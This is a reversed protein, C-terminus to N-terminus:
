PEYLNQFSAHDLETVDVLDYRRQERLDRLLDDNIESPFRPAAAAQVFDAGLVLGIKSYDSYFYEQLLPLLEERFLEQLRVLKLSRGASQEQRLPLFYSHGIQHDRGLLVTLRENIRRLLKEVDIGEVELGNLLDYRPRMERFHFRRRLATDLSEISRDATNMTGLFCLNAPIGFRQRSYPLTVILEHEAGLRKSSEVVSILEGFIRSVNGRNIEDIAIVHQPAERTYAARDETSLMTCFEHLTGEFGTLHLAREAARQLVGPEVRYVLREGQDTDEGVVQPRIGEIFDEYSFSQHFTIFTHRPEPQAAEDLNFIEDALSKLEAELEGVIKWVSEGEKDFIYPETRRSYHVTQSGDITHAQLTAWIGNALHRRPNVANKAKVLPHGCLASVTATGGLNHLALAVVEFWTLDDARERLAQDDAEQIEIPGFDEHLIRQLEYTKGTGPPGFLILNLPQLSRPVGSSASKAGFIKQITEPQSIELLADFWGGGGPGPPPAKGTFLRVPQPLLELRGATRDVRKVEGVLHIKLDYRGGLGKIAFWDGPQIDDFRKWCRSGVPNATDRKYGLQWYSDKVFEGRKSVDDWKIGGAFYRRPREQGTWASNSIQVFDASVKTRVQSILAKYAAGDLAKAVAIGRRDLYARTKGDIPLFETPGMWFLGMTLKALGVTKILLCRDFLELNLAAAGGEIASRALQWLSDVDGPQREAPRPLFWSQQADVVPIADFHDPVAEALGFREKLVTLIERRKETRTNVGRNFSAFLSFPDVQSGLASVADSPLLGRSALENLFSLLEAQRREYDLLRRAFAPYFRTWQYTTAM